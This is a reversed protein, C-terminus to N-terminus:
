LERKGSFIARDSGSAPANVLEFLDIMQFLTSRSDGNFWSYWSHNASDTLDTAAPQQLTSYQTMCQGNVQQQVTQCPAQTNASGMVSWLLPASFLALVFFASKYQQLTTKM